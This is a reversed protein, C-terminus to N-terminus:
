YPKITKLKTKLKLIKFFLAQYYPKITKLNEKAELIKVYLEQNFKMGKSTDNWENLHNLHHPKLYESKSIPTTEM